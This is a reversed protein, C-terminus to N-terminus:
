FKFEEKVYTYFETEFDLNHIHLFFYCEELGQKYWSSLQKKWQRIRFRDLENDGQCNFRVFAKANSLQIHLMDRRGPADVIVTGKKLSNLEKVFVGLQEKNDFWEPNRVEISVEYDQPLKKLYDLLDSTIEPKYKENIQIFATGLKEKFHSTVEIFDNTLEFKSSNINKRNSIGNYIKPCFKFDAGLTDKYWKEVIESDPIRFYTANLEVSNFYKAYFSLTGPKPLPSYKTKEKEKYTWKPLGIYIKPQQNKKGSLYPQDMDPLIFNAETLGDYSMMGFNM